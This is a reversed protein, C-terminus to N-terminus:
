GGDLTANHLDVIHRALLVSTFCAVERYTSAGAVHLTSCPVDATHICWGGILDNKCCYWVVNLMEPENM